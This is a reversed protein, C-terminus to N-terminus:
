HVLFYKKRFFRPDFYWTQGVPLNKFVGTVVGRHLLLLSTIKPDPVSRMDSSMKSKQLHNHWCCCCSSYRYSYFSNSFNTHIYWTRCVSAKIHAFFWKSVKLLKRSIQSFTSHGRKKPGGQVNNLTVQIKTYKWDMQASAEPSYCTWTWLEM